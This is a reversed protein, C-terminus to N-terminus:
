LPTEFHVSKMASLPISKYEVGDVEKNVPTIGHAHLAKDLMLITKKTHKRLYTSMKTRQYM